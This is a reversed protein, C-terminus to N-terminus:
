SVRARRWPSTVRDVVGRVPAKVGAVLADGFVGTRELEEMATLARLETIREMLEATSEATLPGYDTTLQYINILGDNRVEGGVQYNEGKLIDKPLEDGAKLLVPTQQYEAAASLGPPFLLVVTVLIIAWNSFFATNRM